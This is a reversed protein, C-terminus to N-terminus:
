LSHLTLLRRCDFAGDEVDHIPAAIDNRRYDCNRTEADRSPVEFGPPAVHPPAHSADREHHDGTESAHGLAEDSLSLANLLPLLLAICVGCNRRSRRWSSSSRATGAAKQVSAAAPTFRRCSPPILKWTFPRVPLHTRQVMTRKVSGCSKDHTAACPILMGDALPDTPVLQSALM